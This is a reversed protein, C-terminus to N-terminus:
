GHGNDKSRDQYSLAAAGEVRPCRRIPESSAVDIRAYLVGIVGAFRFQFTGALSM